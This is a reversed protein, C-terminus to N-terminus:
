DERGIFLIKRNEREVKIKMDAPDTTAEEHSSIREGCKM